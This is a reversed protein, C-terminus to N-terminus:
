PGGLGRDLGGIVGVLQHLPEGVGGRLDALDFGLSVDQLQSALRRLDNLAQQLLPSPSLGREAEDLVAVDGYLRILALLDSRVAAPLDKALARLEASDKGALAAHIRATADASLKVPALVAGAIGDQFAIDFALQLQLRPTKTVIIAPQGYVAFLTGDALYLGFARVDYEDESADQATMHIITESVAAGSISAIRKFEGPLATLTPAVTIPQNTFGVQTVQIPDTASSQANVLADLGATTLTLTFSM